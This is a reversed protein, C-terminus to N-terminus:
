AGYGAQASTDAEGLYDSIRSGSYDVVTRGFERRGIVLRLNQLDNRLEQVASVIADGGGNRRKENESRTLVAEGKHLETYFHDTPVNDIGVARPMFM